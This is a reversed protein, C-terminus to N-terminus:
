KLSLILYEYSHFTEKKHFDIKFFKFIESKENKSLKSFNSEMFVIYNPLSSYNLLHKLNFSGDNSSENISSLYENYKIDFSFKENFDKSSDSKLLKSFNYYDGKIFFTNLYYIM